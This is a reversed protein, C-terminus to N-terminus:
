AGSLTVATGLTAKWSRLERVFADIAPPDVRLHIRATRSNAGETTNKNTLEIEWRVRYLNARRIEVVEGSPTHVRAWKRPEPSEASM